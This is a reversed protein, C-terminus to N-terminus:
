GFGALKLHFHMTSGRSPKALGASIRWAHALSRASASFNPLPETKEEKKKEPPQQQPIPQNLYFIKYSLYSPLPCLCMRLAPDVESMASNGCPERQQAFDWVCSCFAGYANAQERWGMVLKLIAIILPPSSLLHVLPGNPLQRTAVFLRHLSGVTGGRRCAGPRGFM